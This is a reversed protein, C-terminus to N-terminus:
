DKLRVTATRRRHVGFIDLPINVGSELQERVFSKLTSPHVGKKRAVNLKKKRQALDREFKRAWAEEDKGFDIQFTQKILREHGNDELWKFARAASAKPISGHISEDIGLRLGTSTTFDQVGVKEMLEPIQVEALLRADAKAAELEDELQAVRAAAQHLKHALHSLHSLDGESGRPEDSQWESYDHQQSM